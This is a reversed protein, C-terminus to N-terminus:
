VVVVVFVSVNNAGKEPKNRYVIIVIVRLDGFDEVPDECLGLVMREKLDDVYFGSREHDGLVGLSTEGDQEGVIVQREEM